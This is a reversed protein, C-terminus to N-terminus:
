EWWRTYSTEAISYLEWRKDPYKVLHRRALWNDVSHRGGGSFIMLAVIGVVLLQTQIDLSFGLSFSPVFRAVIMEFAVFLGVIRVMFGAVSAGGAIIELTGVVSFYGDSIHAFGHLLLLAGFIIRLPIMGWMPRTRTLLSWILPLHKKM